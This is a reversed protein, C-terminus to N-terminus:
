AERVGARPLRRASSEWRSKHSRDHASASSAGFGTALRRPRTVSRSTGTRTPQPHIPRPDHLNPPLHPPKATQRNPWCLPTQSESTQKLTLRPHHSCPLPATASRVTGTSLSVAAAGSPIVNIWCGCCIAAIPYIIYRTGVYISIMPHVSFVPFQFPFPLSM